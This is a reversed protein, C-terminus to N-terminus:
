WAASLAAHIRRAGGTHNTRFEDPDMGTWIIVAREFDEESECGLIWAIDHISMETGSLYARALLERTGNIRRNNEQGMKDPTLDPSIFAAVKECDAPNQLLDNRNTERDRM